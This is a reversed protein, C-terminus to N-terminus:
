FLSFHFIGNGNLVLLEFQKYFLLHYLLPNLPHGLLNVGVQIPLIGKENGHQVPREHESTAVGQSIVNTRKAEYWPVSVVWWTCSTSPNFSLM